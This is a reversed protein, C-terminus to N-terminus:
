DNCLIKYLYLTFIENLLLACPLATTDKNDVGNMRTCHSMTCSKHRTLWELNRLPDSPLNFYFGIFEETQRM